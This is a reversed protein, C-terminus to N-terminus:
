KKPQPGRVQQVARRRSELVATAVEATAFRGQEIEKITTLYASRLGKAAALRQPPVERLMLGPALAIKWDDGVKVFALGSKGLGKVSLRGNIGDTTEEMSDVVALQQDFSALVKSLPSAKAGFRAVLAQHVAPTYMDDGLGYLLINQEGESQPEVFCEAVRDLQGDRLITLLTKLTSKPSAFSAEDAIIVGPLAFALVLILWLRNM